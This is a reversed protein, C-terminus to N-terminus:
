EKEVSVIGQNDGPSHHHDSNQEADQENPRLELDGTGAPFLSLKEGAQRPALPGWLYFPRRSTFEYLVYTKCLTGMQRWPHHKAGCVPRLRIFCSAAWRIQVNQRLPFLFTLIYM